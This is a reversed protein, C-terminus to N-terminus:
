LENDELWDSLEGCFELGFIIDFNAMDGEDWYWEWNFVSEDADFGGNEKRREVDIKGDKSIKVLIFCEKGCSQLEKKIAEELTDLTYGSNKALFKNIRAHIELVIEDETDM